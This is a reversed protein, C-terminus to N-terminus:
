LKIEKSIDIIKKMTKANTEFTLKMARLLNLRTNNKDGDTLELRTVEDLIFNQSYETIMKSLPFNEFRERFLALKKNQKHLYAESITKEIIGSILKSCIRSAEEADIILEKIKKIKEKHKNIFDLYQNDNLMKNMKQMETGFNYNPLRGESDKMADIVEQLTMITSGHIKAGGESADIVTIGLNTDSISKIMNEYWTLYIKWDDRTAIQNGYIDEIFMTDERPADDNVGGAHTSDMGYALDQGVLVIKKIGLRVMVAFAANSVCGGLRIREGTKKGIEKLLSEVYTEQGDILILRSNIQNIIEPNADIRFVCPIESARYDEYYNAPKHPDVTITLDPVIDKQLLYKLATDVAFILAHGKALKLTNINKDLSPGASVIIVPIDQPIIESLESSLYAEKLFMMNKFPNILYDDKFRNYTNKMVFMNTRFSNLVRLFNLYSRSYLTPYVNHSVYIMGVIGTYNVYKELCKQFDLSNNEEICLSVRNDNLIQTIRKSVKREIDESEENDGSKLCYEIIGKEPEYIIIKAESSAMQLVKEVFLGTGLGFICVLPTNKKIKKEKIWYNVENLPSFMSNLREMKGQINMCLVPEDDLFSSMYFIDEDIQPILEVYPMEIGRSYDSGNVLRKLGFEM